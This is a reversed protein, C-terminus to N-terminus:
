VPKKQYIPLLVEDVLEDVFQEDVDELSYILHYRLIDFPVLKARVSFEGVVEGRRRARELITTMAQLNGSHRNEDILSNGKAVESNVVSIFEKPYRKANAVMYDCLFHLDDRLNGQDATAQALSRKGYQFGQSISAAYLLAFPSEWQRYIVSRSTKARKAVEAFTVAEYGENELIDLAVKFIDEKLAEGRRRQQVM